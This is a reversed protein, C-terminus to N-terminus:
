RHFPVEHVITELGFGPVRLLEKSPTAAVPAFSTQATPQFILSWPSRDSM